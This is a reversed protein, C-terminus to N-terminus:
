SSIAALEGERQREFNAVFKKVLKNNASSAQSTTVTCASREKGNKANIRDNIYHMYTSGETEKESRDARPEM